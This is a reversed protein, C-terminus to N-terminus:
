PTAVHPHLQYKHAGLQRLTLSRDQLIDTRRNNV